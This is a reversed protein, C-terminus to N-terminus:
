DGDELDAFDEEPGLAAAVAQEAAESEIEAAEKRARMEEPTGASISGDPLLGIAPGPPIKDNPDSVM